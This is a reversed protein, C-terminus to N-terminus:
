KSERNVDMQISAQEVRSCLFDTVALDAGDALGVGSSDPVGDNSYGSCLDEESIGSMIGSPLLNLIAQM